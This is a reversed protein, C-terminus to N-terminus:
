FIVEYIVHHPDSEPKRRTGKGENKNEFCNRILAVLQSQEDIPRSVTIKLIESETNISM